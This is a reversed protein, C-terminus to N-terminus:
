GGFTTRTQVGFQHWVAEAVCKNVKRICDGCLEIEVARSYPTVAEGDGGLAPVEANADMSEWDMSVGVVVTQIRDTSKRSGSYLSIGCVDCTKM